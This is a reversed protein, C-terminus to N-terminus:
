EQQVGEGDGAKPEDSKKETYKTLLTLNGLKNGDTGRMELLNKQKIKGGKDLKTFLQVTKVDFLGEAITEGETIGHQETM